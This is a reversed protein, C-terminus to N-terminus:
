GLRRGRSKKDRSSLDIQLKGTALMVLMLAVADTLQSGPKTRVNTPNCSGPVWSMMDLETKFLFWIANVEGSFSRGVYNCQSTLTNSLDKGDVIEVAKVKIGLIQQM